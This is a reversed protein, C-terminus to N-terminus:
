QKPSVAELQQTESGPPNHLNLTANYHKHQVLKSKLIQANTNGFSQTASDNNFSSDSPFPVTDWLMMPWLTDFISNRARSHVFTRIMIIVFAVPFLHPLSTTFIRSYSVVTVVKSGEVNQIRHLTDQSFIERGRLALDDEDCTLSSCMFSVLWGAM